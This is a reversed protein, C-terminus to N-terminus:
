DVTFQDDELNSSDITSDTGDSANGDQSGAIRDIIWSNGAIHM